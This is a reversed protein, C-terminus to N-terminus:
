RAPQAEHASILDDLYGIADAMLDVRVPVTSNARLHAHFLIELDRRVGPSSRHVSTDQEDKTWFKIRNEKVGLAQAARAIYQPGYMVTLLARMETATLGRDPLKTKTTM